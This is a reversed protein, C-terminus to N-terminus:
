YAGRKGLVVFITEYIINFDLMLSRNYIYYLDLLIMDEFAVESRGTVQWLGTIGPRVATRKKHWDKYLEYEYPLCPRPGVLSMDGKLVNIIQPLEDLSFKRLFAGISTIRPDNTIKLPQGEKEAKIEGKILKTVYEQHISSDTDNRMTRFKLMHFSRGGKGIANARYFVTGPSTSKIIAGLFAFFPLLLIFTPLTILADIAHKLKDFLWSNKQMCLRIMPIDCFLDLQIKASIVPMLHPPFWITIANSTCFDLIGILVRRDIKDETLIIENINFDDVVSPLNALKGFNDKQIITSLNGAGINGVIWYPSELEIAKSAIKSAQVDSGIVLTQRRFKRKLVGHLIAHVIVFRSIPVAVACISFSIILIQWGVLQIPNIDPEIIGFAGVLIFSSGFAKMLNLFQDGYYRSITLIALALAPITLLLYTKTFVQPFTYIVVIAGLTILGWAFAKFLNTFHFKRIFIRHYSYLQNDPFFTLVIGALVCLVLAQVPTDIMFFGAGTMWGSVGFAFFIFFLDSLFLLAKYPVLRNAMRHVAKKPGIIPEDAGIMNEQFISVREM